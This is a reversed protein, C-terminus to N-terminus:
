SFKGVASVMFTSISMNWMRRQGQDGKLGPEGKQGVKGPQGQEGKTGNLRPVGLQGKEGETGNLGQPGPIGPEGKDGKKGNLGQPRTNRAKGKRERTKEKVQYEQNVKRVLMGRNEKKEENVRQQM